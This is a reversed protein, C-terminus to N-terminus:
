EALIRGTAFCRACLEHRIDEPEGEHNLVYITEVGEGKCVPCRVLMEDFYNYESDDANKQLYQDQWRRPPKM